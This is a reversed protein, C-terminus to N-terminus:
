SARMAAALTSLAGALAPNLPDNLLAVTQVPGANDALVGATFTSASNTVNITQTEAFVGTVAKDASSTISSM